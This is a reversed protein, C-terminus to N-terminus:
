WVFLRCQKWQWGGTAKNCFIEEKLEAIMLLSTVHVTETAIGAVTKNCRREMCLEAVVVVSTVHVTETAVM